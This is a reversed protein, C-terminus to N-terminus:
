AVQGALKKQGNSQVPIRKAKTGEAKPLTITVLGYHYDATIQEAQVATPLTITRSFKGYRQENLHYRVNDQAQPPQFEGTITLRNDNLTIDLAGPEIGPVAATVVFAEPTETIQLPLALSEQNAQWGGMSRFTDNVLQDMTNRLTMMERFPDLRTLNTM